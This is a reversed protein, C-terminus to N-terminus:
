RSREGAEERDARLGGALYAAEAAYYRNSPAGGEGISTNQQEAQAFTLLANVSDKGALQCKGIMFYAEVSLPNRPYRRVFNRYVNVAKDYLAATFYFQGSRMLMAEVDKEEPYLQGYRENVDAMKDLKGLKEYCFGVNFLADKAKDSKPYDDVLIMYVEAAKEYANSKEFDLAANFVADPAFRSQPYKKYIANYSRCAKPWESLKEYSEAANFLALAQERQHRSLMKIREIVKIKWPEAWSRTTPRTTAM